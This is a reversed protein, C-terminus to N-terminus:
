CWGIIARTVHIAEDLTPVRYGLAESVMMHEHPNGKDEIACVIPTRKADAWAIEMVTGISVRQAGLLNVLLVDCRTADFRDRTMVGRPTSLVGMHAYEEGTGSITGISRLYEKARLPSLGHIGSKALECVAHERWDQAGDFTLGSIPGALYVTRM